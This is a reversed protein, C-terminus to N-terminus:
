MGMKYNKRRLKQGKILISKMLIFLLTYVLSESAEKKLLVLRFKKMKAKPLSGLFPCLAAVCKVLIDCYFTELGCVGRFGRSVPGGSNLDYKDGIDKMTRNPYGLFGSKFCGMAKWIWHGL